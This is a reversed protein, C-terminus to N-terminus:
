GAQQQKLILVRQCHPCSILDDARFLSNYLQPPLNMNCGLCYGDRAIAVAQGRRQERLSDYRKVLGPPLAQTIEARRAVDADIDGQLADIETQKAERREESNQELLTLDARRGALESNVEEVQGLKQLIQEEIEQTQKRAVTIERGVAQFEKNTKIEKMNTESRRINEQETALSAEFEAKEQELQAIRAELGAVVERASDLEQEIGSVEGFLGSQNNKLIDIQVDIEQLQELMELKKKM